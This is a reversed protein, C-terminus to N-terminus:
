AHDAGMFAILYGLFTTEGLLLTTAHPAMSRPRRNTQAAEQPPQPPKRLRPRACHISNITNFSTNIAAAVVQENGPAGTRLRGWFSIVSPPLFGQPM